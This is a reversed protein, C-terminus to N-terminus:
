CGTGSKLIIRVISRGYLHNSLVHFNANAGHVHWIYDLKKKYLSLILKLRSAAHSSTLLCPKVGCNESICLVGQSEHYHPM